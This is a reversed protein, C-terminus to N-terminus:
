IFFNRIGRATTNTSANMIVLQLEPVVVVLVVEDVVLGVVVVVDWGVVVVDVVWGVEVVLGEDVVEWGVPVDEGVAVEVVVVGDPPPWYPPM